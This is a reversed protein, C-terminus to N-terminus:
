SVLPLYIFQYTVINFGPSSKTVQQILFPNIPHFVVHLLTRDVVSEFEHALFECHQYYSVHNMVVVLPEVLKQFNFIDVRFHKGGSQLFHFLVAQYLSLDIRVFGDSNFVGNGFLAPRKLWYKILHRCERHLVTCFIYELIPSCSLNLLYVSVIM